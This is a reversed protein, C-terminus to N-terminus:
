RNKVHNWKFMRDLGNDCFVRIGMEGIFVEGSVMMELLPNQSIKPGM